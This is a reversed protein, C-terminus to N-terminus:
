DEDDDGFYDKDFNEPRDWKEDHSFDDHQSSNQKNYGPIGPDKKTSKLPNTGIRKREFELYERIDEDDVRLFSVDDTNKKGPLTKKVRRIKGSNSKLIYNSKNGIVSEIDGEIVFNKNIPKRNLLIVEDDNIYNEIYEFLEFLTDQDFFLSELMSKIVYENSIISQPYLYKVWKYLLMTQFLKIDKISSVEFGNSYNKITYFKLYELLSAYSTPENSNLFVYDSFIFINQALSRYIKNFNDKNKELKIKLIHELSFNIVNYDILSYEIGQFIRSIRDFWSFILIADEGKYSNTIAFRNISVNKAMKLLIDFEKILEKKKIARKLTEFYKPENIVSTIFYTYVIHSDNYNLIYGLYKKNVGPNSIIQKTVSNLATMPTRKELDFALESKRRNLIQRILSDADNFNTNKDVLRTLFIIYIKHLTKSFPVKNMKFVRELNILILRKSEENLNDIIKPLTEFFEEKNSNSYISDLIKLDNSDFKIERDYNIFFYLFALEPIGKLFSVLISTASKERSKSYMNKQTSHKIMNWIRDQGKTSLNNEILQVVSIPDNFFNVKFNYLWVKLTRNSKIKYIEQIFASVNSVDMTSLETNKAYKRYVEDMLGLENFIKNTEINPRKTEGDLYYILIKTLAQAYPRNSRYYAALCKLLELNVSRFSSPKYHEFSDRVSTAFLIWILDRLSSPKKPQIISVKQVTFNNITAENLIKLLSDLSYVSRTKLNDYHKLSHTILWPKKEKYFSLAKEGSISLILIINKLITNKSDGDNSILRNYFNLTFKPRSLLSHWFKVSYRQWAKDSRLIEKLVDINEVFISTDIDVLLPNIIRENLRDHNELFFEEWVKKGEYDIVLQPFFKAYFGKWYNLNSHKLSERYILTLTHPNEQEIHNNMILINDIYSNSQRDDKTLYNYSDIQNFARQLLIKNLVTFFLTQSLKLIGQNSSMVGAFSNFVIMEISTDKHIVNYQSSISKYHFKPRFKTSLYTNRFMNMWYIKKAHHYNKILNFLIENKYDFGFALVFHQSLNIKKNAKSSNHVYAQSVKKLDEFDKRVDLIKTSTNGLDGYASIYNNEDYNPNIMKLIKLLDSKYSTTIVPANLLAILIILEINKYIDVNTEETSLQNLFSMKFKNLINRSIINVEKALNINKGKRKSIRSLLLLKEPFSLNAFNSLESPNANNIVINWDVNTNFMQTVTVGLLFAPKLNNDITIMSEIRKITKDLYKTSFKGSSFYDGIIEKFKDFSNDYSAYYSPHEEIDVFFMNPNEAKTNLVFTEFNNIKDEEKQEYLLYNDSASLLFREFYSFFRAPKKHDEIDTVIVKFLEEVKSDTVSLVWQLGESEINLKFYWYRM